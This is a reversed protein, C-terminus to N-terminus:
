IWPYQDRHWRVKESELLYFLQEICGTPTHSTVYAVLPTGGENVKVTLLHNMGKQRISWGALGLGLQSFVKQGYHHLLVVEPLGDTYMQDPDGARKIIRETGLACDDPINM